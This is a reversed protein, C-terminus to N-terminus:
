SQILPDGLTDRNCNFLQGSRNWDYNGLFDRIVMFVAWLTKWCDGPANQLLPRCFHPM